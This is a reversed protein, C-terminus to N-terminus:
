VEPNEKVSEVTFKKGDHKIKLWGTNKIFRTGAPVDAYTFNNLRMYTTRTAGGHGVVLLTKGPNQRAIEHLTTVVRESVEHDSEMDPVHRYTWAKEFPLTQTKERFGELHHDPMGELQGFKREKLGEVRNELRIDRGSILSATEVARKMPSSYVDDFVIGKSKFYEGAKRAQARGYDTLMPDSDGGSLVKDKNHESEAHRVLYIITPKNM